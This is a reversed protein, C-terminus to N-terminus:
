LGRREFRWLMLKAKLTLSHMCAAGMAAKEKDRWWPKHLAKTDRVCNGIAVTDNRSVYGFAVEPDIICSPKKNGPVGLGYEHHGHDWITIESMGNFLDFCVNYEAGIPTVNVGQMHIASINMFVGLHKLNAYGLVIDALPAIPIRSMVFGRLKNVLLDAITAYTHNEHDANANIM